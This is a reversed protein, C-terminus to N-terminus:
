PPNQCRDPNRRRGGSCSAAVTHVDGQLAAAALGSQCSVGPNEVTAARRLSAAGEQGSRERTATSNTRHRM